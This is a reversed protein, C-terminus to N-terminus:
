RGGQPHIENAVRAGKSRNCWGHAPRLNALENDGGMAVPTVHDVTDAGPRGCIACAPNGALVTRRNRAYM